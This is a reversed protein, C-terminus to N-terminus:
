SHSSRSSVLARGEFHGCAGQWRIFQVPGSWARSTFWAKLQRLPVTWRAIPSWPNAGHKELVQIWSKAIGRNLRALYARDIRSAPIVHTLVLDPFYGIQWGGALLSLVIDNDGGSTLENGCRDTTDCQPQGTLWGELASRRLAMGAGVPAHHPYHRTGIVPDRRDSALRPVDGLDRCALLEEFEPQWWPPPPQQFDPRIRGGAAALQPYADFHTIVRELYDPALVNDDDVFVILQGRSSAIGRRRAATLGLIPERVVRLNAPAKALPAAADVPPDSANDILVAEWRSFPLTQACLGALTRSLREPHPNHTPIVVSLIM